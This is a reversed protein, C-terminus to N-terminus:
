KTQLEYGDDIGKNIAPIGENMWKPEPASKLYYDFFEQMRISLDIRNPRKTLNHEDGNYNLLWTPKDLRRLASFLEIGQQWPVAGDNDNSMILLPTTIKDAQFLPSNLIYLPQKEWLTGGIRSQGHEYLFMRSVGSEWRIGSYASTMNAVPAGAMAAKFLSTQTVIYAVEYGGWSQGQLGINDKDVFGKEVMAMTGSVVADCASKGPYGEKYKIDPVFIIYGNSNYLPFNIVSRSPAPIINLHIKDSNKEYFYVIMPYKKAPDFNEPKYLLGKLENGEVSKWKVAEVKGWYYDKQQPNTNSIKRISDFKMNCLWLDAYETYSSKQWILKDARKSKLPNTLDNDFEILKQPATSSINELMYFGQRSTEENVSKLLLKEKPDIFLNEDDLKIYRFTTKTDRGKTINFPATKNDPDIKWIDYRDYILVDKDKDTWGAIGYSSPEKPVDNEENSFKVPISKTLSFSVNKKLNLSHWSSDSAEFWLLYNGCPSLSVDFPKKALLMKRIGTPIDILFVDKYDLDEWSNLKLYPKHSIGLAILGNGKQILRVEEIISDALQVLNKQKIIYVALYNRKKEKDLDKLQQTQIIDDKWNWIDVKVKEEDLLTDKLEPKQKPATGFFLKSGDESFYFSANESVEWNNKLGKTLTDIIILSKDSQKNYYYLCFHKIKATDPTYIFSIQNGKDDSVLKKAFGKKQFICKLTEKSIDFIYVATTDVTDKKLTIFGFLNGTKSFTCETVEKSQFSQNTIPNGYTLDYTDIDKLKSKKKKPEKKKETKIFTSDKKNSSVTSDTTEKKESLFAYWSANEKPLVFSNLSATKIISDTKFIWIAVSDKPLNEKKKKHLKAKRTTDEQPKIKFIIFDANPSFEADYGRAVSDKHFTNTNILYIYGDGKQPNIEYSVWGGNSSIKPHELKKWIDYDKHSLIKKTENQSFVGFSLGIMLLFFLPIHNKM